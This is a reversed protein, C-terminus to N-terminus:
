YKLLINMSRAAPRRRCRSRFKGSSVFAVVQDSGRVVSAQYTFYEAGVQVAGGGGVHVAGLSEPGPRIRVALEIDASSSGVAAAKRGGGGGSASTQKAAAKDSQGAALRGQRQRAAASSSSHEM